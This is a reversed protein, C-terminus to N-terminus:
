LEWVKIKWPEIAANSVRYYSYRERWSTLNAKGELIKVWNAKYDHDSLVKPGKEFFVGEQMISPWLDESTQDIGNIDHVNHDRIESESPFTRLEDFLMDYSGAEDALRRLCCCINLRAVGVINPRLTLCDRILKRYLAIARHQGELSMRSREKPDIIELPVPFLSYFYAEHFYSGSWTADLDKGKQLSEAIEKRYKRVKEQSDPKKLATAESEVQKVLQMYASGRYGYMRAKDKDATKADYKPSKTLQFFMEIRKLAEVPRSKVLHGRATHLLTECYPNLEEASEPERFRFSTSGLFTLHDMENVFSQHFADFTDPNLASTAEITQKLYVPLQSFLAKREGLIKDMEVRARAVLEGASRASTEGDTAATTAQNVATTAKAHIEKSQSKQKHLSLFGEGLLFATLIGNLILFLENASKVEDVEHRVQVLEERTEQLLEQHQLLGAKFGRAYEGPGPDRNAPHPRRGEKPEAGFSISASVVLGDASPSLCYAYV